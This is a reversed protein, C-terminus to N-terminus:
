RNLPAAPKVIEDIFRIIESENTVPPSQIKGSISKKVSRKAQRDIVEDFQDLPLTLSNFRKLEKVRGNLSSAADKFTFGYALIPMIYRGIELAYEIQRYLWM